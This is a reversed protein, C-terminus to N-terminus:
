DILWIWCFLDVRNSCITLHATQWTVCMKMVAKVGAKLITKAEENQIHFNDKKLRETLKFFCEVVKATHNPLMECLTKFHFGYDEVEPTYTDQRTLAEAM